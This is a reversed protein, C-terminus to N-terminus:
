MLARTSSMRANAVRRTRLRVLVGTFGHDSTGLPLTTTVPSSDGASTACSSRLRMAPTAVVRPPASPCVAMMARASPRGATSPTGPRISPACGPWGMITSPSVPWTTTSGEGAVRAAYSRRWASLTRWARRRARRLLCGATVRSPVSTSNCALTSSGMSIVRTFCAPAAPMPRRRVSNMNMFRSSMGPSSSCYWAKRSRISGMFPCATVTRVRSTPPSFVDAASIPSKPALAEDARPSRPIRMDRARASTKSVWNRAMRRAASWPWTRMRRGMTDVTDSTRRARSIRPWAALRRLRRPKLTTSGRGARPVMISTGPAASAASERAWTLSKKAMPDLSRVM